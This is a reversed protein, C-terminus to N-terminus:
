TMEPFIPPAHSQPPPAALGRGPIQDANQTGATPNAVIAVPEAITAVVPPTTATASGAFACPSESTKHRPAKQDGHEALVLPGHGTCVVVPIAGAGGALMYGPPALIKMALAFMVLTFSVGRWFSARGGGLGM